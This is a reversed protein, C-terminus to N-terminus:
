AINPNIEEPRDELEGIRNKAIDVRKKHRDMINEIKIM